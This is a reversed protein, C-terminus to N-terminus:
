PYPYPAQTLLRVFTDYSTITYLFSRWSLLRVRNLRTSFHPYPSFSTLPVSNSSKIKM